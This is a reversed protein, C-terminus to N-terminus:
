EAQDIWCKCLPHHPPIKTRGLKDGHYIRTLKSVCISCSGEESLVDIDLNNDSLRKYRANNQAWSVETEYILATRYKLAQFVERPSEVFHRMRSSVDGSLKMIYREARRNANALLGQIREPDPYEAQIHNRLIGQLDQLALNYILRIDAQAEPMDLEGLAWRNQFDTALRLHWRLVPNSEEDYVISDKNIKASKRSGHQNSPANKNQIANSETTAGFLIEEKGFKNWYLEKEEEPSLPEKGIGMRFEPYSIGNKLFLDAHHNAKAMKAEKDIELFNLQVLNEKNLLTIPSFTSELLLEEIVPSIFKEIIIQQLKVVDMLNRSLTQATSRSAASGTGMDVSSVDLGAWLREKFHELYGEVKLAKNEAGIAEVSYKESVVLSGETPMESVKTRVLDVETTGDSYTEAPNQETGVKWLIIPFLHKHILVDINAEISRLARIDDIVPVVSPTGLAYGAKKNTYFHVIDEKKFIRECGGIEQKWRLINNSSDLEPVMTEPALSFYGAVPKLAKDKVKRLKGGSAKVDRIKLWYANSHVLLDRCAQYLLIEFPIRTAREIQAIRHRIYEVRDDNPGVFEFGEKLFLSLKARTARAFFAEVDYITEVELHNYQPYVWDKGGGKPIFYSLGRAKVLSSPEPVKALGLNRSKPADAVRSSANSKRPDVTLFSLNALGFDVGERRTVGFFSFVKDIFSM